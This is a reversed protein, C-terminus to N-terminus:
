VTVETPLSRTRVRLERAQRALLSASLGAGSPRQGRGMLVARLLSCGEQATVSPMELASGVEGSTIYCFLLYKIKRGTEPM